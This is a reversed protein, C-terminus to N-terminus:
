LSDASPTRCKYDQHQPGVEVDGGVLVQVLGKKTKGEAGVWGGGVHTKLLTGTVNEGHDKSRPVMRTVEPGMLRVQGCPSGVEEPGNKGEEGGLLGM